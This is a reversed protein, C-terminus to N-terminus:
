PDISVMHNITEYFSNHDFTSLERIIDFINKLVNDDLDYLLDQITIWDIAFVIIPFCTQSLCFINADCFMSLKDCSIVLQM